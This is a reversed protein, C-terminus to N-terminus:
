LIQKVDTLIYNSHHSWTTSAVGNILESEASTEKKKRQMKIGYYSYIQLYFNFSDFLMENTRKM